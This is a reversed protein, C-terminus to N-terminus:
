LATYPPGDSRRIIHAINIKLFMREPNLRRTSREKQQRARCTDAYRQTFRHLSLTQVQVLQLGPHHLRLKRGGPGSHQRWASVCVFSVPCFVLVENATISGNLHEYGPTDLHYHCILINWLHIFMHPFLEFLCLIISWILFLSLLNQVTYHHICRWPRLFYYIVCVCAVVCPLGVFDLCSFFTGTQKQQIELWCHTLIFVGALVVRHGM